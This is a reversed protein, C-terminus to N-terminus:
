RCWVKQMGRVPEGNPGPPSLYFMKVNSFLQKLEEAGEAGEEKTNVIKDLVQQMFELHPQVGQSPNDLVKGSVLASSTLIRPVHNRFFYM